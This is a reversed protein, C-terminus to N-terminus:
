FLMFLRTLRGHTRGREMILFSMPLAKQQDLWEDVLEKTVEIGSPIGLTNYQDIIPNAHLQHINELEEMTLEALRLRETFLEM